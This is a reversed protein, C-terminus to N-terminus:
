VVTLLKYECTIVVAHLFNKVISRQGNCDILMLSYYYRAKRCGVFNSEGRSTKKGAPSASFRFIKLCINVGRCTPCSSVLFWTFNQGRVLLLRKYVRSCTDFTCWWAGSAPRNTRVLGALFAQLSNLLFFFAFILVYVVHKGSTVISLERNHLGDVFRLGLWVRILQSKIPSDQLGTVPDCEPIHM